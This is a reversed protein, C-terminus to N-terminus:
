LIKWHPNPFNSPFNSEALKKKDHSTLKKVSQEFSPLILIRKM